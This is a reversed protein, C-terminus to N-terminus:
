YTLYDTTKFPKGYLAYPIQQLVKKKINRVIKHGHNWDFTQMYRYYTSRKHRKVANSDLYLKIADIDTGFRDVLECAMNFSYAGIEDKDGYYEQNRRQKALYATSEYGPIAKFERTRYQRMHIIEHLMTDAFLRCFREWRKRKIVLTEDFMYYSLVIEIYRASGCQDDSSYYAGGMYMIGPEQTIDRRLKVRVPLHRKIHKSIIGHLVAIELKQNIVVKGLDSLM